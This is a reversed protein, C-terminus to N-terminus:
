LSKAQRLPIFDTASLLMRYDFLTTLPLEGFRRERQSSFVSDCSFKRDVISGFVWSM